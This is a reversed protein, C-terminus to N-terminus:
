KKEKLKYDDIDIKTIRDNIKSGLFMGGIKAFDDVNESAYFARKGTQTNSNKMSNSDLLESLENISEKGSEVITVNPLRDQILEKIIPYHTCGLIVTDFGFDSIEKLYSDVVLGTVVNGRDIYGNEVLPVFLPCAKEIVSIDTHEAAIAKSYAHSKITASTALVAIKKNKTARAASQAAAEIVGLVPIDTSKKLEELATSSATGCAVLVAKVDHSLLFNLDQKAFEIITERNHSGYPVRATDGFYIIDENPLKKILEKVVTLGGLGSDFVGIARNDM